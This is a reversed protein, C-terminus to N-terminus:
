EQLRFWSIGLLPMRWHASDPRDCSHDKRAATHVPWTTRHVYLGISEADGVADYKPMASQM